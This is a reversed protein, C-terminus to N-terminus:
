IAEGAAEDDGLDVDEGATSDDTTAGGGTSGGSGSGATGAGGTVDSLANLYGATKASTAGMEDMSAQNLYNIAKIQGGHLINLRDLEANAHSSRLVDMVSGSDSTVGAAGYAATSQGIKQDAVMGQRAANFQAAEMAERANQRQVEASAELANAKAQGASYAGFAGITSNSVKAAFGSM